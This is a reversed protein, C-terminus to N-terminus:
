KLCDGNWRVFWDVRARILPSAGVGGQATPEVLGVAVCSASTCSVTQPYSTAGLTEPSLQVMRWTSGSEVVPVSDDIGSCSSNSTCSLATLTSTFPPTSPTWTSGSLTEVLGQYVPAPDEPDGNQGAYYYGVVVCQSTSSCSVGTFTVGRAITNTLPLSVQSWSSGNYALTVPPGLAEGSGVAICFTPSACSVSALQGGLPSLGSSTWSTGNFTVIDPQLSNTYYGVAVCWTASTCSVSSLVTPTPGPGFSTTPTWASGSLTEAFGASGATGVAVCAVNSSCSVSNLTASTGNAVGPPLPLPTLTWQSGSLSGILPFAEPNPSGVVYSGVAICSTASVCSVGNFQAGSWSSPWSLSKQTWTPTASDASSATAVGGVMGGMLSLGLCLLVVGRALKTRM